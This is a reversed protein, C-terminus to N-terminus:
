SSPLDKPVERKQARWCPGLSKRAPVIPGCDDASVEGLCDGRVTSSKQAGNHIDIFM